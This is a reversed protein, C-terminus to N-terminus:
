RREIMEVAKRANPVRWANALHGAISTGRPFPRLTAATVLATMIRSTSSVVGRRSSDAAGRDARAAFPLVVQLRDAPTLRRMVTRISAPVPVTRPRNGPVAADQWLIRIVDEFTSSRALELADHGRYFLRGNEILTIASQMVPLGFHLTKRAADGPHLRAQKRDRLRDVDATLYRSAHAKGPDAEARVHGRSVYAYLSGRSKLIRLDV